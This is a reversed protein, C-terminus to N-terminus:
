KEKIEERRINIDEPAEIGIKVQNGNASIAVIKIKINDGILISEQVRRGLVLM